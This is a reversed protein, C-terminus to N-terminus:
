KSVYNRVEDINGVPPRPLKRGFKEQQYSTDPQGNVTGVQRTGQGNQGNQVTGVQGNVTGVQETNEYVFEIAAIAQRAKKIRAADKSNIVFEQLTDEREHFNQATVGGLFEVFDKDKSKFLIDVEVGDPLRGDELELEEFQADTIEGNLKMTEREVRTTTIGNKINRERTQGRVSQVDAIQRDETYDLNDFLVKLFPPLFKQDILNSVQEIIQGPGKGAQKIHQIIADAKSAGTEMGPFLERADMGFALSIVAMGLITSEREDFGDPVSAIDIQKLDSDPINRDGVAVSKAFRSLGSSSMKSESLAIAAKLDEPDLGGRTILIQRIPRSGMKEQKYVAIDVLNQAANICRSVCCFGVGNMERRPSSMQSAYIVRSFHLKYMKGDTDTYVVPYLPNGTRVCRAADLNAMSIAMGEIPGDKAGPGIIEIFMGNDQTILDEVCRGFFTMWGEGFQTSKLLLETYQEAVQVHSKISVDRAVVRVPITTMKSSMAYVAGSLHDSAKWFQGLQYDRRASWWPAILDNVKGMYFLLPVLGLGGYDRNISQQITNDLSQKVPDPM